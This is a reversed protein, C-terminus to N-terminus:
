DVHVGAQVTAVITGTSAILSLANVPVPAPAAYVKSAAPGIAYSGVGGVTATGTHSAWLTGSASNNTIALYRVDDPLTEAAIVTTATGTVSASYDTLLIAVNPDPTVSM